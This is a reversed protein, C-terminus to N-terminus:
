SAKVDVGLKAMAAEVSWKAESLKDLVLPVDGRVYAPGAGVLRWYADAMHGKADKLLGNQEHWRLHSM